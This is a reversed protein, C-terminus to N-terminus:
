HGSLQAGHQELIPPGQETVVSLGDAHVSASRITLGIRAHIEVDKLTVGTIPSEPLGILIGAQDSGKATLHTISLDHFHPTHPEIKQADDNASIEWDPYYESISIATEVNTMTINRYVINEIVNSRGRNSKIRIGDKTGRFRITEALINRVGGATESGISLGHGHLFTSDRITIDSCAANSVGREPLGSKISIDDDGTDILVHSIHVYRSSIPDIGDTNPAHPPNLITINRVTADRSSRLVLTYMPSDQLAVGEVLIHQTKYFEILWPRPEEPRGARDEARAVVWWPQGQGNITGAGVIAVETAGNSTILSQRRNENPLVPYDSVRQSGLLTAGREIELRIHNRLVIPGTLFRGSSLRVIGGGQTACADIAAQLARTDQTRGNAKAGYAQPDCVHGRIRMDKARAEARTWSTLIMFLSAHALLLFLFLYWPNRTGHRENKYRRTMQSCCWRATRSLAAYTPRSGASKTPVVRMLRLIQQHHEGLDHTM